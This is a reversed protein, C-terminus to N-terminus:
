FEIETLYYLKKKRRQISIKHKNNLKEEIMLSYAYLDQLINILIFM